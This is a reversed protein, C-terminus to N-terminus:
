PPMSPAEQPDAPFPWQLPLTLKPSPHLALVPKSSTNFLHLTGRRRDDGSAIRAHSRARESMTRPLTVTTLPCEGASIPLPQLPPLTKCPNQKANRLVSASERLRVFGIVAHTSRNGTTCQATTWKAESTTGRNFLLTVGVGVVPCDFGRRRGGPESSQQEDRRAGWRRSESM